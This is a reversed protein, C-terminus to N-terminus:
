VFVMAVAVAIMVICYGGTGGPKSSRKAAGTVHPVDSSTTHASTTPHLTTTPKTSTYTANIPTELASTMAAVPATGNATSNPFLPISLVETASSIFETPLTIPATWTGSISSDGGSVADVSSFTTYSFESTVTTVAEHAGPPTTIRTITTWFSTTSYRTSSWDAPPTQPVGGLNPRTDSSSTETVTNSVTTTVSTEVGITKTITAGDTDIAITETPLVLDDSTSASVMAPVSSEATTAPVTVTVSVIETTTGSSPKGLVISISNTAIATGDTSMTWTYWSTSPALTSDPSVTVTTTSVTGTPAACDPPNIGGSVNTMKPFDVPDTPTAVGMGGSVLFPQVSGVDVHGVLVTLTGEPFLTTTTSTFDESTTIAAVPVDGGLFADVVDRAPVRSQDSATDIDKNVLAQYKSLLNNYSGKDVVLQAGLTAILVILAFIIILGVIRGVSEPELRGSRRAFPNCRRKRAAVAVPAPQVGAEQDGTSMEKPDM